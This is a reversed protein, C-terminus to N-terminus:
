ERVAVLVAVSDAVLRRVAFLLAEASPGDLWHADDVLVAVATQESCTALLSLTAAGVAFREQAPAPRLALAGELAQAQPEPIRDLAGLAPRLLELLSAFPIQAESEIGRAQLLQMGSARAAAHDLLATKGIGPEGVLALTASEGSRARELVREVDDRERERGVLM